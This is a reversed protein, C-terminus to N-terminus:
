EIPVTPNSTRSNARQVYTIVSAVHIDHRISKSMISYRPNVSKLTLYNWHVWHVIELFQDIQSRHWADWNCTASQIASTMAVFWCDVTYTVDCRNVVRQSVGVPPSVCYLSWWRRRAVGARTARVVCPEIRMAIGCIWHHDRHIDYIRCVHSRISVLGVLQADLTRTSRM